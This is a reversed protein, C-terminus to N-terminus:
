IYGTNNLKVNAHYEKQKIVKIWKRSTSKVIKRIYLDINSLAEQIITTFRNSIQLIKIDFKNEM